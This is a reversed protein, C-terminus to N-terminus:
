SSQLHRNLNLTQYRYTERRYPSTGNVVYRAADSYVSYDIDTYKVESHTDQYNGYFLMILRVVLGGILHLVISKESSM